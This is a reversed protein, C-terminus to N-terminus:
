RDLAELERDLREDWVTREAPQPPTSGQPVQLREATASRRRWRLLMAAAGVAGLGGLVALGVGLANVSGPSSIARVEAGYREEFSALIVEASDGAALRERIERKMSQTVPSDHVDLTQNKCCPAILQIEIARARAELAPDVPASRSSTTSPADGPAASAPGVAAVMLLTALLADRPSM